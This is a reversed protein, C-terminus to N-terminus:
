FCLEVGSMGVGVVGGMEREEGDLFCVFGAFGVCGILQKRGRGIGLVWGM